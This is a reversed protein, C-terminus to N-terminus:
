VLEIDICVEKKGPAYSLVKRKDLVRFEGIKEKLEQIPGEFYDPQEGVSYYHVVSGEHTNRMVSDIFSDSSLPLPMIVRDFDFGELERVDGQIPKISRSFKNLLINEKLYHYAGPNLEVATINVSPNEKVIVLAFPGVGAFFYGINEGEEVKDAVIKRENCMRSNFYTKNLDLKIKVGNESHTTETRNEGGIVEVPRIRYEGMTQSKRKCVTKISPHVTMIAKGILGEKDELESPIEIVAIDGILDFSTVLNEMEEESVKGELFDKLSKPKRNKERVEREIVETRDTSGKVPFYVYEDDSSVCYDKNILNKAELKRRMKEAESKRVKICKKKVM